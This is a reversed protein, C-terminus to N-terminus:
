RCDMTKVRSGLSLTHSPRVSGQGHRDGGFNIRWFRLGRDNPALPLPVRSFTRDEQLRYLAPEFRTASDFCLLDMRGDADYDGVSTSWGYTRPLGVSNDVFTQGHLELSLISVLILVARLAWRTGM